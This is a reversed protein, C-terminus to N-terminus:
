VVDEKDTFVMKCKVIVVDKDSIYTDRVKRAQLLNDFICFMGTEGDTKILRTDTCVIAYSPKSM